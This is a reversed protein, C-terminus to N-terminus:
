LQISLLTFLMTFDEYFIGKKLKKSNMKQVLISAFGM